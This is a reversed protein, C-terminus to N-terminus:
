LTITISPPSESQSHVQDSTEIIPRQQIWSKQLIDLIRRWRRPRKTRLAEDKELDSWNCSIAM